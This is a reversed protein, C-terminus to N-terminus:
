AEEDLFDDENDDPEETEPSKKDKLTFLRYVLYCLAVTLLAAGAAAFVILLLQDKEIKKRNEASFFDKVFRIIGDM